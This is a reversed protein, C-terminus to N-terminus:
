QAFCTSNSDECVQKVTYTFFLFTKKPVYKKPTFSSLYCFFFFVNLAKHPTSKLELDQGFKKHKKKKKKCSILAEKHAQIQFGKEPM